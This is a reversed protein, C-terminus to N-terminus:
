MENKLSNRCFELSRQLTAAYKEAVGVSIWEDVPILHFRFEKNLAILENIAPTLENSVSLKEFCRFIEYELVYAACLAVDSKPREPKETVAIVKGNSSFEVNGYAKPNGTKFGSLVNVNGSSADDIMKSYIERNLIVGDGANLIFSEGGIFDRALSVAHGYGLPEEQYMLEIQPFERVIYTKTISDEPNLVVGIKEIHNEIMRNIILDIIPRLVIKGERIDYMPLMEKRFKGDLGSRTGKGAATILGKM